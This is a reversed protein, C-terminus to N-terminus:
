AQVRRSDDGSTHRVSATTARPSRLRARRGGRERLGGDSFLEGPEVLRPHVTLRVPAGARISIWELGLPDDLVVEAPALDYRGRPVAELVIRARGRRARVERAGLPGLPQRVTVAGVPLLRRRRVEVELCVDDGEVHTAGALARSATVGRAALRAWARATLGALVLGVAVVAVPVSGFLWAALFATLGLVIARGSRRSM